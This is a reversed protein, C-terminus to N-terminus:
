AAEGRVDIQGTVAASILATRYEKLLAIANQVREVLADLKGTERDLFSAIARQESVRPVACCLDRFRDPYLRLRSDVIGYSHRRFESISQTSRFLYHFYRYGSDDLALRFVAYSPSVIGAYESFGLGRKWALMFNMAMDRAQCLKYGVLSEARTLFEDSGVFESRPRVGHYESVSLLQEKGSRSRSDIENLVNKNRLVDWHAPIQGLWDIGSDKMPVTPDLGRTVARTILATRKEELLEILREKKAVLADVRGTERDLFAAIDAQEQPEPWCVSIKSVDDPSCRQHSRTASQVRASLEQRAPASLFFYLAFDLHCGNAEMAVFEGSALTLRRADPRGIIITAKRPNLKSVLLTLEDVVIKSSDISDSAEVLAGGYKQVNPISYHRVEMGRIEVPSATRRTRRLFRDARQTQWRAPIRGLWAVGSDKYEPYARFRRGPFPGNVSRQDPSSQSTM